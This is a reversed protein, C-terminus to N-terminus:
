RAEANQLTMQRALVEAAGDRMCEALLCSTRTQTIQKARAIVLRQRLIKEKIPKEVIAPSETSTILLSVGLGNAVMGKAVEISTTRYRITPSLNYQWFPSLLFDRSHPLDILIFPKQALQHLSLPGPQRALESGIHVLAYPELEAICEMDISAPLGVDYTLALEIQQSSLLSELKALDGEIFNIQLRPFREKALRLIIPLYRAAITTFVGISIEGAVGEEGEAGDDAEFVKAASVIQRAEVLKRAGFHTLTMGPSRDRSFLPQQFLGELDRIAVSISPQSVNLTKAAAATSGTEATAIFYRLLRISVNM